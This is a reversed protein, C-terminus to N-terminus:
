YNLLLAILFAAYVLPALLLAIGLNTNTGVRRRTERVAALVLPGVRARGHRRFAAGLAGASLVFERYGLGPLGRGRGVNGPKPAELELLCAVEAAAAVLRPTGPAGSM